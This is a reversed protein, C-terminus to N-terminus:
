SAGWRLLALLFFFVAGSDGESPGYSVRFALSFCQCRARRQTRIGAEAHSDTWNGVSLIPWHFIFFPTPPLHVKKKAWFFFCLMVM